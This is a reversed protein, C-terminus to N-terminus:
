GMRYRRIKMTTIQVQCVPCININLKKKHLRIKKYLKCSCENNKLPGFLKECFLGNKVPKFDKYSM